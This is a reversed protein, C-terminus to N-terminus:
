LFKKELAEEDCLISSDDNLWASIRYKSVHFIKNSKNFRKM